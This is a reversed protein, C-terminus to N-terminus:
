GPGPNLRALNALRRTTADDIYQGARLREYADIVEAGCVAHLPIPGTRSGEIPALKTLTPDGCWRCPEAPERGFVDLTGRLTPM